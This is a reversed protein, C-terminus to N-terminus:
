LGCGEKDHVVTYNKSNQLEEQLALKLYSGLEKEATRVKFTNVYIAIPREFEPLSRCSTLM